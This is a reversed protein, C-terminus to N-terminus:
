RLRAAAARLKPDPPNLALDTPNPTPPSPTPTQPTAQLITPHENFFPHRNPSFATSYFRGRRSPLSGGLGKAVVSLGTAHSMVM